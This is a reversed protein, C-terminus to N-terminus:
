QLNKNEARLEILGGFESQLDPLRSLLEKTAKADFILRMTIDEDLSPHSQKHDIILGGTAPDFRTEIPSCVSIPFIKEKSSM